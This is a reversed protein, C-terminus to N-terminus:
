NLRVAAKLRAILEDVVYIVADSYGSLEPLRDLNLITELIVTELKRERPSSLPSAM